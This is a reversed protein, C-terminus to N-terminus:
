VDTIGPHQEELLDLAGRQKRVTRLLGRGARELEIRQLASNLAAFLTASDCPKVLFQHISGRNIARQAVEFEAQGTLMIRVTSPWRKAVVELFEHGQMGPMQQDSVVVDVANQELLALGRAASTATLMELGSRRMSRVVSEIALPEDDVFLVIHKM